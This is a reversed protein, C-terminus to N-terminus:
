IIFRGIKTLRVSWSLLLSAVLAIVFGVWPTAFPGIFNPLETHYYLLQLLFQQFLYVGFCLSGIEVVIKPVRGGTGKLIYGFVTLLMFIGAGSYCIMCIRGTIFKAIQVLLASSSFISDRSEKLLTLAFFLVLFLIVSIAANAKTYYRDMNVDYRQLAYGMYFFLMYYMTQGIRLPLGDVSLLSCLMLLPLVVKPKLHLKEIMWIFAFCLFLMPLFWMHAVGNILGYLTYEVPQTVDDFILIYLLSFIACPLMLRKAKSLFLNGAKLKVEGKTRVQFGFVYGSVFM